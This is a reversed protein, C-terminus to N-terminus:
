LLGAHLKWAIAEQYIRRILGDAGSRLHGGPLAQRAVKAESAQMAEWLAESATEPIIRDAEATILLAHQGSTLKRAHREPEPLRAWLAIGHGLLQAALVGARGWEPEWRIRFQHSIVTALKGYGQVAVMGPIDHNAAAIVAFPAGLSAGVITIREADIEPHAALAAHLQGIGDLTDFIARRAAPLHQLAGPFDLDRPPEFPYDFSALAIPHKGEPLLDLVEGASRLGGFLMVAPYPGDGAAPIRLEATITPGEELELTISEHRREAQAALSLALLLVGALSRRVPIPARRLPM